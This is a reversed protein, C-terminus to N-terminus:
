ANVARAVRQGRPRSPDRTKFSGVSNVLTQAQEQLSRGANEAREVASANQRTSEELEQVAVTTQEIGGLQERSAASIRSMIETVSRSSSVIEAMTSGASDVISSGDEVHQVTERILASIERAAAASRQSLSRVESAVVAFGRGLEGARAAEVAANLALINTQFAIGDIVSIIDVIKKARERISHMTTVVDGFSTGGRIAVGSANMALENAHKASDVNERVISELRTMSQKVHDLQGAESETRLSLDHSSDAIDAASAKISDTSKRIEAVIGRLGDVTSNVDQALQAFSGQYDGHLQKELDGNAIASLQSGVDKINTDCVEMLRNLGSVIQRFSYECADADGRATFDGRTAAEVLMLVERNIREFSAKVAGLARTIEIKKGPLVEIDSSFNGRSYDVVIELVRQSLKIHSDALGNVGHVMEGFTGPFRDADIRYDIQGAEHQRTMEGEAAVFHQLSEQMTRMSNLLLGVEDSTHVTITQRLNGQAIGNAVQTAHQLPRVVLRQVLLVLAPLLVIFLGVGLVTGKIAAGRSVASVDNLATTYRNLCTARFREAHTRYKDLRTAVERMAGAAPPKDAILTAVMADASAFYDQFESKLTSAEASALTDTRKIQELNGSLKQALARADDLQSSTRGEAASSLHDTVQSLLNSNDSTAVLTPFLVDRVNELQAGNRASVLYTYGVFFVFCLSGVSPALLVKWLLPLSNLAGTIRRMMMSM